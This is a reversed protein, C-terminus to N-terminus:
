TYITGTNNSNEIIQLIPLGKYEGPIVPIESESLVHYLIDEELWKEEIM